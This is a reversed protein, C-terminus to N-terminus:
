FSRGGGGHSRGSSGFHSSSGGGGGRSGGGGSSPPSSIRTRNVTQHSFEDKSDIMDLDVNDWLQYQYTQYKLAYSRRISTSLGFFGLLGVVVAIGWDMSSVDELWEGSLLNVGNKSRYDKRLYKAYSNLFRLMTNDYDGNTAANGIDDLIAEITNDDIINILQGTTSMYLRHNNFDILFLIGSSESDFGYGGYDYFDDAFAVYGGAPVDNSTVLVTDYNYKQAITKIKELMQSKGSASLVDANDVIRTSFDVKAFTDEAFVTSLTFLMFLLLFLSIIKKIM